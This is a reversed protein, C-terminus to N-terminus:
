SSIFEHLKLSIPTHNNTVAIFFCVCDALVKILSAFLNRQGYNAPESIHSRRATWFLDSTVPLCCLSARM